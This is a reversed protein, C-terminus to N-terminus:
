DWAYEGNEAARIEVNVAGAAIPLADFLERVARISKAAILVNRPSGDERRSFSVVFAALFKM